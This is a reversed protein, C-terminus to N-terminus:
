FAAAARIIAKGAFWWFGACFAVGLILTTARLWNIRRM